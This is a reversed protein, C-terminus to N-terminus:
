KVTGNLKDLESQLDRVEKEKNLIFERQEKEVTRQRSGSLKSVDGFLPSPVMGNSKNEFIAQRADKIQQRLLAVKAQNAARAHSL